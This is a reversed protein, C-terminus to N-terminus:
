VLSSRDDHTHQRQDHQDRKTHWGDHLGYRLHGTAAGPSRDPPRLRLGLGERKWYGHSGTLYQKYSGWKRVYTGNYYDIYSLGWPFETRANVPWSEYFLNYDAFGGTGSMQFFLSSIIDSAASVPWNEPIGAARFKSNIYTFANNPMPISGDYAYGTFMGGWAQLELNPDTASTYTGDAASTGFTFSDEVAVNTSPDSM